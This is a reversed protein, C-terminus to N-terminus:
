IKVRNDLMWNVISIAYDVPVEGVAYKYPDTLHLTEYEHPSLRLPRVDLIILLPGKPLSSVLIDKGIYETIIVCKYNSKLKQIDQSSVDRLTYVGWHARSLLKKSVNLRKLAKRLIGWTSREDPRLQRLKNGVLFIVDYTDHTRLLITMSTDRRISHSMLLAYAICRTILSRNLFIEDHDLICLFNVFISELFDLEM